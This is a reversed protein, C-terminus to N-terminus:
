LSKAARKEASAVKGKLRSNKKSISLARSRLTKRKVDNIKIKREARALRKNLNVSEQKLKALRIDAAKRREVANIVKKEKENVKVRM